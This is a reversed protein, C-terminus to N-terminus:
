LMRGFISVTTRKEMHFPNKDFWWGRNKNDAYEPINKVLVKEEHRVMIIQFYTQLFSTTLILGM